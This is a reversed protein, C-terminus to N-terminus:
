EFLPALLGSKGRQAFCESWAMAQAGSRCVALQGPDSVQGLVELHGAEDVAVAGVGGASPALRLRLIRQGDRVRLFGLEGHWNGVALIQSQPDFAYAATFSRVPPPAQWRRKGTATELLLVQEDTGRVALLKGDDSFTLADARQLGERLSWRRQLTTLDYLVLELESRLDFLNGGILAALQKGERDVRVQRLSQQLALSGVKKRTAIRVIDISDSQPIALHSGGRIPLPPEEDSGLSREAARERETTLSGDRHLFLRQAWSADGPPLTPPSDSPDALVRPPAFVGTRLDLYLLRHEEDLLALGAGDPQFALARIDVHPSRLDRLLRGEPLRLVQVSADYGVHVLADGQLHYTGGASLQPLAVNRPGNPTGWIMLHPAPASEAFTAARLLVLRSWDHRPPLYLGYRGDEGLASAVKSLGPVAPPPQREIQLRDDIRLLSGADDRYASFNPYSLFSAAQM